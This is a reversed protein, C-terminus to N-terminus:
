FDWESPDFADLPESQYENNLRWEGDPYYEPAEFEFTSLMHVLNDVEGWETYQVPNTLLTDHENNRIADAVDTPDTSDAIEISDTIIQGAIYGYAHHTDFREGNEDAFREAVDIFDDSFPNAVHQHAFTAANEGLGGNLVGPPVGAGTTLEHEFGLDVAQNHIPISGPPHGTATLIDIDQPLDDLFPAFDSEGVAATTEHLEVGDPLLEGLAAQFSEGWEYEAHIAGVQTYGRDEILGTISQTDTVNSHSGVRFVYRTENDIVGPSGAMHLVNPVQLEEATERTSVGVDSSVVGTVALAGDEEVQRRFITDAEGGDSGTDDEVVQVEEDLVGGDANIEDIAFNLGASHAEGWAEFNGSFPQLGGIVIGEDDGDGLCGALLGTASVGAAALFSRRDITGRGHASDTDRPM